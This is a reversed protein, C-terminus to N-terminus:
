VSASALVLKATQKVVLSLYKFYSNVIPMNKHRTVFCKTTGQKLATQLIKIGLIAELINFLTNRTLLVEYIKKLLSL